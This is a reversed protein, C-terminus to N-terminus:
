GMLNKIRNYFNERIGLPSLSYYQSIGRDFSYLDELFDYIAIVAQGERRFKENQADILDTINATGNTYKKEMLSLNESANRLSEKLLEISPLSHYMEYAATRISLEIQQMKLEKQYILRHVESNQKLSDFIKNGGEFVPYNVNLLLSWDDSDNTPATALSLNKKHIKHSLEGFLSAEPLAFRRLSTNRTLTQQEIGISLAELEPSNEFGETIMINVFTLAKKLNTIIDRMYQSGLYYDVTELGVDEEDFALEQPRNMLQNLAIKTQFVNAKRRLVNSKTEAMESNWRLVEDPGGSGVDVRKKAMQLHHEISRLDEEEVKLLAKSRLYNLYTKSTQDTIDLGQSDKELKRVRVQKKSNRINRILPDSFIVQSLTFAYQFFEKNAIPNNKATESDNVEYDLNFDLQPLYSSWNTLHDYRSQKIQEDIIRFSLNNQTAEEVARYISLKDGTGKDDYLVDADLLLDFPISLNLASATQRNIVLKSTWNFRVSIDSTNTGQLIQDANLAVRRALKQIFQPTQGALVGQEVDIVGNMSFSPISAQNLADIQSKYENKSLLVSPTLYVAQCNDKKLFNLTEEVNTQYPIVKIKSTNKSISKVLKKAFSLYLPDVLIHVKKFNVIKHFLNLDDAITIQKEVYTLNPTTSKNARTELNLLKPDFINSLIVPINRQDELLTQASFIGRSIILDVDTRQLTRLTNQEIQAKEWGGNLIQIDSLAYKGKSVLFLEKKIEPLLSKTFSDQGDILIIINKKPLETQAQASSNLTFGLSFCLIFYLFYRLHQYNFM